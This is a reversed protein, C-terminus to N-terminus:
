SHKLFITMEVRRELWANTLYVTYADAVNTSKLGLSTMAKDIQAMTENAAFLREIQAATTPDAARIKAVFKTLNARRASPSVRYTLRPDKAPNQGIPASVKKPYNRAGCNGNPCPNNVVPYILSPVFNPDFTWQARTSRADFLVLSTIALLLWKNPMFISGALALTQM